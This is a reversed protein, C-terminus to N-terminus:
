QVFRDWCAVEIAFSDVRVEGVKGFGCAGPDPDPRTPFAGDHCTLIDLVGFTNVQRASAISRAPAHAHWHEASCRDPPAAHFQHLPYANGDLILAQFEVLPGPRDTVQRPTPGVPGGCAALTAALVAALLPRASGPIERSNISKM